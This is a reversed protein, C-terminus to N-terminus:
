ASPRAHQSELVNTIQYDVSPHRRRANCYNDIYDSIAHNAETRTAFHMGHTLWDKLTAFFSESVANDWGDAARSM